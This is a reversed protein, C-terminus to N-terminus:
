IRLLNLELIGFRHRGRHDFAATSNIANPLPRQRRVYVLRFRLAFYLLTALALGCLLGLVCLAVGNVMSGSGAAKAATDAVHEGTVAVPNAAVSTAPASLRLGDAHSAGWLGVVTVIIALVLTAARM